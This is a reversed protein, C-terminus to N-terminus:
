GRAPLVCRCQRKVRRWAGSRGVVTEAGRQAGLSEGECQHREPAGGAVPCAPCFVSEPEREREPMHTQLHSPALPGTTSIAPRLSPSYRHAPVPCLVTHAPLSALSSSGSTYATIYRGVGAFCISLDAFVCISDRLPAGAHPHLRHTRCARRGARWCMQETGAGHRPGAHVLPHRLGALMSRTALWHLWELRGPGSQPWTPAPGRQTHAGALTNGLARMSHCLWRTLSFTPTSPHAPLPLSLAPAALASPLRCLRRICVVCLALPLSVSSEHRVLFRIQICAYGSACTSAMGRATSLQSM